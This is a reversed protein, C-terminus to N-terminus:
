EDLSKLLTEKGELKDLKVQIEEKEKEISSQRRLLLAKEKNRQMRAARLPQLAEKEKELKTRDSPTSM